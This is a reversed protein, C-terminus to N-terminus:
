YIWSEPNISARAAGLVKQLNEKECSTSIAVRTLTGGKIEEPKYGLGRLREIMNNVNEQKTFAGVVIFCPPETIEQVLPKEIIVPKEVPPTV